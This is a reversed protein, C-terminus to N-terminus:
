EMKRVNLGILVRGHIQIDDLPVEWREYAPNDSIVKVNRGAVRQLRKIHVADDISFVYIGDKDMGNIGRDIMLPDGDSFTGQMSDGFGTIIALNPIGTYLLRQERIWERDVILQQIVDIHEPVIIGPGMSARVDFRPIAVLNESLPSTPLLSESIALGAKDSRSPPDGAGLLLWDVTTDYERAISVLHDNKINTTDGAFWLRVAEYSISCSNALDRKVGRLSVHPRRKQVLLNLRDTIEMGVFTCPQKDVISANNDCAHKFKELPM